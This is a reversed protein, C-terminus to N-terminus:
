RWLRKALKCFGVYVQEFAGRHKIEGLLTSLHDGIKMLDEQSLIGVEALIDRYITFFVVEM